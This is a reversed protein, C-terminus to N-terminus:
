DRKAEEEQTKDPEQCALVTVDYVPHELGSLGPSSSFMWGLFIRSPAEGPRMESIELLGANEPQEEPSAKWCRHSIIELNGFHVVTGVLAEFRSIKGTVKNLGQLQIAAYERRAKGDADEPTKKEPAAVAFAPLLGALLAATFIVRM